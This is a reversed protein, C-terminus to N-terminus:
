NMEAISLKSEVKHLVQKHLAHAHCDGEDSLKEQDIPLCRMKFQLQFKVRLKQLVDLPSDNLLQLM